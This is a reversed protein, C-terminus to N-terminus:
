PSSAKIPQFCFSHFSQSKYILRCCPYGHLICGIEAIISPLLHIIACATPSRPDSIAAQVHHSTLVVFILLVVVSLLMICSCLVCALSLDLCQLLLVNSLMDCSRVFPCLFESPRGSTLGRISHQSTTWLALTSTNDLPSLPSSCVARRLRRPFFQWVETCFSLISNDSTSNSSQHLLVDPIGLSVVQLAPRDNDRRHM